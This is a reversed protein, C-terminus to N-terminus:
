PGRTAKQRRDRQLIRVPHVGRAKVQEAFSRADAFNGAAPIFSYKEEPLAEAISLFQGETYRLMDGASDAITTPISGQALLPSAVIAAFLVFDFVANKGSLGVPQTCSTEFSTSQTENCVGASSVFIRRRGGL